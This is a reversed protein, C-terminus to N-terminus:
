AMQNLLAAHLAPNAGLVGDSQPIANNFRLAAGRRDTVRAGAESMILAGAAIDWEWSRRFTFMADYRGEAVLSLRYALSPRYHRNIAPASRTWFRPELSPKTALVNAGTAQETESVAILHGNLRAGDGLSASYMRDMMPLYVVAAVPTGNEVIAMSHSWAKSGEIFSRTGDIPDIVFVRQASLRADSDPSEESLWGYDPRASRLRDELLDNVAHDAATVPGADDPKHQIDLAEGVFSRALKGAEFAIDTLLTLDSAPM